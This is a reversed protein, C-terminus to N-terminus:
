EFFKKKLYDRRKEALIYEFEAWQPVYKDFLMDIDADQSAIKEGAEDLEKVWAALEEEYFAPDGLEPDDRWVPLTKSNKFRYYASACLNRKIAKEQEPTFNFHLQLMRALEHVQGSITQGGGPSWRQLGLYWVKGDLPLTDYFAIWPIFTHAVIGEPTTCADSRFFDETLRYRPSPSAFDINVEDKADPLNSFFWMNYPAEEAPRFTCELSGGSRKGTLVEEVKPDNCRVYIHVGEMDYVIRIGTKWEPDTQPQKADKLLRKVDTDTSINVNDGYPVFRTEMSKWDNYMPTRSFGDATRPPNFLYQVTYSKPSLSIFRKDLINNYISRCVDYRKARYFLESVRRLLRLKSESSLKDAAFADDFKEVANGKNFFDVARWYLLDEAKPSPKKALEEAILASVKPTDKKWLYIMVASDMSGSRNLEVAKGIQDVAFAFDGYGFATWANQRYFDFRAPQKGKEISDNLRIMEDTLKRWNGYAEQDCFGRQFWEVNGSRKRLDGLVRFKEAPTIKPNALEARFLESATANGANKALLPVISSRLPGYPMALVKKRIAEFSRMDGRKLAAAGLSGLEFQAVQDSPLVRSAESLSKVALDESLNLYENLVRVMRTCATQYEREFRRDPKEKKQEKEWADKMSATVAVLEKFFKEGSASDGAAKVAGIALNSLSDTVQFNTFNDRGARGYLESAAKFYDGSISSLGNILNKIAETRQTSPPLSELLSLAELAEKGYPNKKVSAYKLALRGLSAPNGTARVTAAVDATLVADGSRFVLEMMRNCANFIQAANLSENKLLDKWDAVAGPLDAAARAQVANLKETLLKADIFQAKKLEPAAAKPQQATLLPSLTFLAAAGFILPYSLSSIPFAHRM